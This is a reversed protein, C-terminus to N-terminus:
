LIVDPNNQITATLAATFTIKSPREFVVDGHRLYAISTIRFFCLFSCFKFIKLKKSLKKTFDVLLFFIFNM